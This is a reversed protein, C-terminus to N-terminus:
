INPGTQIEGNFFDLRTDFIHIEGNSFDMFAYLIYACIQTQRKQFGTIHM